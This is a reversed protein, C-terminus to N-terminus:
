WFGDEAADSLLAAVADPHQAHLDHDGEMWHVRLRRLRQEAAAVAAAKDRAWPEPGGLAPILLVGLDVAPYREVPRHEWLHRLIRLHRTRTLWPAITGDPLVRM